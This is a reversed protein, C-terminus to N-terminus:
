APRQGRHERLHARCRRRGDGAGHRDPPSGAPSRADRPGTTTTFAAASRRRSAWCCGCCRRSAPVPYASSPSVRARACRSTSTRGADVAWGAFLPVVPQSGCYTRRAHRSRHAKREVELPAEFVPRIRAFLPVAEIAANLATTLGMLAATFQGFASNFAAFPPSMSPIPKARRRDGPRLATGLIPLSTAAVTQYVAVDPGPMTLASTPSAPRGAALLRASGGRRRSAQRHRGADGDPPRDGAGPPRLRHTRHADAPSRARVPLRRRGGCLRRRARRAFRRLDAHHWPEGAFLRRRHHREAGPGCPNAPHRRRGPHALHSRGGHLQPLLVHKLRMVRDWVAPQLRRNLHTGLRILAM